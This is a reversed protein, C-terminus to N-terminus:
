TLQELNYKGFSRISSVKLRCVTAMGSAYAEISLSVKKCRSPNTMQSITPVLKEASRSVQLYIPCNGYEINFGIANGPLETAM